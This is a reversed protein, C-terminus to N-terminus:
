AINLQRCIPIKLANLAVSFVIAAVLACAAVAASIPAMAIGGIALILAIVIDTASSVILWLSPRTGWMKRRNRIAYLTAQSGFV